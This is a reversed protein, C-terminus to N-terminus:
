VWCHARSCSNVMHTQLCKFYFAFFHPGSHSCHGRLHLLFVSAVVLLCSRCCELVTIPEPLLNSPPDNRIYTLLHPWQEDVWLSPWDLLHASRPLPCSSAKGLVCAMGWKHSLTVIEERRGSRLSQWWPNPQLDSPIKIVTCFSLDLHERGGQQGQVMEELGNKGEEWGETSNGEKLVRTEM